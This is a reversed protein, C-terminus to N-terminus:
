NMMIKSALLSLLNNEQFITSSDSYLAQYEIVCIKSDYDRDSEELKLVRNKYEQWGLELKAEKFDTEASSVFGLLRLAKARNCLLQPDMDDIKLGKTFEEIAQVYFGAERLAYGHNKHFEKMQANKESFKEFIKYADKSRGLKFLFNSYYIYAHEFSPDLDVAEGLFIIAKDFMERKIEIQALGFNIKADFKKLDSVRYFWFKLDQANNAKIAASKITQKIFFKM